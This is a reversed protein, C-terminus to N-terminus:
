PPLGAPDIHGQAARGGCGNVSPLRGILIHLMRVLEAIETPSLDGLLCAQQELALDLISDHIARGAATIRAPRARGQGLVELLGRAGLLAISRSVAAKDIGVIRCIQAATFGDEGAIAALVRWDIVGLGHRERYLRSAGASLKNALWSVLGPVYVTQALHRGTASPQQM